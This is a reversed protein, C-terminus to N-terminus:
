LDTGKLYYYACWAARTEDCEPIELVTRNGAVLRYGGLELRELQTDSARAATLQNFQAIDSLQAVARIDAAFQTHASHEERHERGRRFIDSRLDQYKEVAEDFLPDIQESVAFNVESWDDRTLVESAKPFFYAEEMEIHHRYYDVLKRLAAQVQESTAEPSTDSDGVIAVYHQTLERIEAHEDLIRSLNSGAEPNRRHLKRFILDEKPHHVADPYGSLYEAISQLLAFDPAQGEGLNNIETDMLDLLRSLNKHELQLIRLAHTMRLCDNKETQEKCQRSTEDM